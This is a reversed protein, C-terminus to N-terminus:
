VRLRLDNKMVFVEDCSTWQGKKPVLSACCFVDPSDLIPQPDPEAVFELNDKYLVKFVTRWTEKFRITSDLQTYPLLQEHEFDVILSCFNTSPPFHLRHIIIVLIGNTSIGRSQCFARLGSIIEETDM